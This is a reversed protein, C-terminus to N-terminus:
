KIVKKGNDIYHERATVITVGTSTNTKESQVKFGRNAGMGFEKPVTGKEWVVKNYSMRGFQDFWGADMPIGEATTTKAATKATAADATISTGIMSCLALSCALISTIIKKLRM